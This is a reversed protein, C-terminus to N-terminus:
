RAPLAAVAAAGLVARSSRMEQALELVLGTCM